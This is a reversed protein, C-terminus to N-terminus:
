IYSIGGLPVFLGRVFLGFFALAATPADQSVDIVVVDILSTLSVLFMM